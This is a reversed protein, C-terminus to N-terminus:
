ATAFKHNRTTVLDGKRSFVEIKVKEDDVTVWSYNEARHLLSARRLQYAHKGTPVDELAGSLKYAKSKGHPYPWFFPSSILSIVKFDPDSGSIIEASMSVHIDGSLFVVKRVQHDVIFDLLEARQEPFGAWKDGSPKKKDPFIPVSSVLIKARGTPAGLWSKIAAMQEESLIEAAEGAGLDDALLRETRTDAVFFDCNGDSFTYWLKTPIEDLRDKTVEILPSHSAQYCLYSHMAAPFKVMLDGKSAKEPWNDEIEHDDLTMYTPVRSMLQRVFPQSFAVRYRELFQDTAKDPALFNLDDAYIQDGVMLLLDARKGNSIAELISRFAKDGRSDFVSGGFLRLLYRCSGFVFSREAQDDDSAAVFEHVDNGSWDLDWDPELAEPELDSHFWGVQYEYRQNATLSDVICVGTMDFHPLMRFYHNKGYKGGEPRIRVVGFVRQPATPKELAGRAWIRAQSPSTHGLIPGVTPAQVKLKREEM